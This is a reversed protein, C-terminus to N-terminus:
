PRWLAARCKLLFDASNRNAFLLAGAPRECVDSAVAPCGLYLAEAVSIGYADSCTPRVMLDAKRFLPWLERQGTMFSINEEIGLEAIRRKVTAYYDYNGIEGIVFLLGIAPFEQRLAAILEITMDLGYLDTGRYFVIDPANGILLPHHQRVFTMVDNPYTDLIAAEEELPPALFPHGVRTQAPLRVGHVRYYTELHQGILVIERCRNIISSYLRIKYTPWTELLRWNHDVIETRPALGLAFLILLVYISQVNISIIDYEDFPLRFLALFFYIASLKTPDHVEVKHGETELQRKHRKLFVSVGGFPPAQPGILLVKM